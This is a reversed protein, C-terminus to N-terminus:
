PQIERAIPNTASVIREKTDDSYVVTLVGCVRDADVPSTYDKQYYTYIETVDDPYAVTFRYYFTPMLGAHVRKSQKELPLTNAM